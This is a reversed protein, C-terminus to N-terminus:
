RPWGMDICPLLKHTSIYTRYNKLKFHGAGLALTGLGWIKHSNCKSTLIALLQNSSISYRLSISLKITRSRQSKNLHGIWENRPKLALFISNKKKRGYEAFSLHDWQRWTLQQHTSPSSCCCEMHQLFVAEREFLCLLFRGTVICNGDSLRLDNTM